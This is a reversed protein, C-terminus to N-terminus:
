DQRPLDAAVSAVLEDAEEDGLTPFALISNFHRLRKYLERVGDLTLTQPRYRDGHFSGAVPFQFRVLARSVSRSCSYLIRIVGSTWFDRGGRRTLAYPDAAGRDASLEARFWLHRPLCDWKDGLGLFRQDPEKGDRGHRWRVVDDIMMCAVYRWYDDDAAVREELPLQRHLAVSADADFSLRAESDQWSTYSQHIAKVAEVATKLDQEAPQRAGTGIEHLKPKYVRGESRAELLTEAEPATLVPVIM